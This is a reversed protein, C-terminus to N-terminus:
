GKYTPTKPSGLLWELKPYKQALLRVVLYYVGTTFALVFAQFGQLAVDDLPLGWGALIAAFAAVFTPVATRITSIALDNM